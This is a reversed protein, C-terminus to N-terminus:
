SASRYFLQKDQVSISFGNVQFPQGALRSRFGFRIARFRGGRRIRDQFVAQIGWIAEGWIFDGWITNAAQLNVTLVNQDTLTQDFDMQIILDIDYDGSANLNALIFWLQKLADYSGTVSKWNSFHYNEFAGVSLIQGAQPTADFASGVTLQTDTNATITRTESSGDSYFATVNIGILASPTFIASDATITTGTASLITGNIEAGDGTMSADDLLWIFGNDDQSYLGATGSITFMQLTAANINNFNEWVSQGVSLSQMENYVIITDNVSNILPCSIYVNASTAVVYYKLCIKESLGRNISNFLPNIKESLPNDLRVQEFSFDTPDIRYFKYNTALIYLYSLGDACRNNLIGVASSVRQAEGDANRSSKIWISRDTGIFLIGYIRKICKIPGDYIEFNTSDCTWPLGPKSEYLDTPNAADVYYVCGFNEEFIASKPTAQNTFVAAITGDAATNDDYFTTVNDAITTLRYAVGLSTPSIRYIVRANCQATVGTALTESCTPITVRIQRNVAITLVSSIPSLESEEVIVGGVTVAFSVYYYYNGAALTGVAHDALTPATPRPLSLNTWTTGNFKLNENVGNGWVMYEDSNTVVFEMDPYDSSNLGQVAATPSTLGTYIKSGNQFVNVQTGDSKRYDFSGLGNLQAMQHGGNKISSGNRTTFAGDVSYVMNLSLSADTEPVKTPSDRLNLGTSNNYYSFTELGLTM